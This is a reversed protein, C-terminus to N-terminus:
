SLSLSGFNSRDIIHRLGGVRFPESHEVVQHLIQLGQHEAQDSQVELDLGDSHAVTMHLPRSIIELTASGKSFALPRYLAKTRPLVSNHLLPVPM